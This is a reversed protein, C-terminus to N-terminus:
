GKPQKNTKPLSFYFTAGSDPQGEAWTRGGHRSIIRRVNALGIGTGEFEESRHLRQFVGFLKHVYQMDFGVGNDRVFFILDGDPGDNCGVEIQAPNRTRTYKVANNILNVWVQRLMSVDAEVEPLADIKWNIQRGNIENQAGNIAEELLANQTVKDRRLETRSMRSFVLLDDILTGMQRASNAIINLYRGEREDLKAATQKRLLDVFGDIHRLPARLDHSVSYSFAELEQNANRLQENAVKVHQASRYVEAEMQELREAVDARKPLAIFPNRNQRVFETVDEVRHIIYEVQGDAGPIPSNIPSWFREEFVGDPRRVDYKQIAMTDSARNQLVRNLSARLNSVGDAEPTDPNDPFVEFLGRNLIAERKTMTAKLYADSVAVITFDPKLVVFLGPVAEFLTRFQLQLREVQKRETIDTSIGAVANIKGAADRVPFKVALHPRLGDPYQVMEEIELPSGTKVVTQFHEDAATAQEKKFVDFATKGEIEQRSHGTIDTFRRNVFLYRGALDKIFVVAPTNDLISEMLAKSEALEREAQSRLRLDRRAMLFAVVGIVCALTSGSVIILKCANAGTQAASQREVLLQIEAARMEEIGQWIQDMLHKGPQSKGLDDIVAQFGQEQRMKIRNNLSALRESILPELKDLQQQAQPNDATLQRIQKVWGSVQAQASECDKLFQDNGTLLYGRQKTEADTLIALGSELTAIVEQTHAVWKETGILNNTTFYSLWGIGILVLVSAVAGLAIKNEVSNRLQSSAM